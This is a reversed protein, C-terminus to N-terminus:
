ARKEALVKAYESQQAGIKAIEERMLWKELDVKPYEGRFYERKQEFPGTANIGMRSAPSTPVKSEGRIGAVRTGPPIMM